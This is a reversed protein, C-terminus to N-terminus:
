SQVPAPYYLVGSEPAMVHLNENAAVCIESIVPYTNVVNTALRYEHLKSEGNYGQLREPIAVLGPPALEKPPVHVHVEMKLATNPEAIM